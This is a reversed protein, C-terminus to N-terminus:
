SRLRLLTLRRRPAVLARFLPVVRYPRVLEADRAAPRVATAQRGRERAGGGTRSTLWRPLARFATTLAPPWNRVPMPRIPVDVVDNSRCVASTNM